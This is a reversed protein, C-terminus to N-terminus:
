KLVNKNKSINFGVLLSIRNGTSYSYEIANYNIDRYKGSKNIGPVFALNVPINLNGSKFNYGIAFALGVGSLSFNPGLACEFGKTTRIGVLSSASPLFMGKELGAILAVWEVIGIFKEDSDTFRTEWQWGYQTTFALGTNGFGNNEDENFNIGENLYDASSGQSILTIGVRPGSLKEIQSFGVFPILLILLTYIAKM